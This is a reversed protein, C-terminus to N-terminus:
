RNQRMALEDFLATALSHMHRFRRGSIPEVPREGPRWGLRHLERWLDAARRGAEIGLQAEVRKGLESPGMREVTMGLLSGVREVAEDRVVGAVLSYDWPLGGPKLLTPEERELLAGLRTWHQDVAGRSPFSGAFTFLSALAFLVAAAVLVRGGAIDQHLAGNMSALMQNFRTFPTGEEPLDGKFSFGHTFLLIRDEPQCLRRLLGQAFAQNGDLELMNNILVSPDSLAVFYGTGVQGEIVLGAGEAFGYTFPLESEFRAPHNAVIETAARGLDTALIPHAIPLQPNNRYRPVDAPLVGKARRIGLANLAESAAGFDDAVLARGGQGLFRKLRGGDISVEPYLFWLVDHPGLQSWDLTGPASMKCGSREALTALAGLGNWNQSAVEYDDAWAKAAVLLVLAIRV